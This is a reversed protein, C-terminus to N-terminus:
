TVIKRNYKLKDDKFIYNDFLKEIMINKKSKDDLLAGLLKSILEDKKKIENQLTNILDDKKIEDSARFGHRYLDDLLHQANDKEIELTGPYDTYDLCHQDGPVKEEFEINKVPFINYKRYNDKGRMLIKIRNHRFQVFSDVFFEVFHPLNNKM